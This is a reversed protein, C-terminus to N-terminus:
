RIIDTGPILPFATKLKASVLSDPKKLEDLIQKLKINVANDNDIPQIAEFADLLDGSIVTSSEDALDNRKVQRALEKFYDDEKIHIEKWKEDIRQQLRVKEEDPANIKVNELGELQEYLKQLQSELGPIRDFM